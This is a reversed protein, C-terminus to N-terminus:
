FYLDQILIELKSKIYYYSTRSFTFNQSFRFIETPNEFLIAFRDELANDVVNGSIRQTIWNGYIEDQNEIGEKRSGNLYAEKVSLVAVIDAIFYKGKSAGNGVILIKKYNQVRHKNMKWALSIKFKKIKEIEIEGERVCIGEFNPLDKQIIEIINMKKM